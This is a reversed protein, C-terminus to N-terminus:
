ERDERKAVIVDKPRGHLQRCQEAGVLVAHMAENLNAQAAHDEDFLCMAVHIASAADLYQTWIVHMDNDSIVRAKM